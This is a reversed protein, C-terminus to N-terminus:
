TITTYTTGAIAHPDHVTLDANGADFSNQPFLVTLNICPFIVIIQAVTYHELTYMHTHTHTHTRSHTHTHTYSDHLQLTINQHLVVFKMYRLITM